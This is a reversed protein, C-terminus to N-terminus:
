QGGLGASQSLYMALDGNRMRRPAGRLMGLGSVASVIIPERGGFCIRPVTNKWGCMYIPRSHSHESPRAQRLDRMVVGSIQLSSTEVPWHSSALVIMRLQRAHFIPLVPIDTRDRCCEERLSPSCGAKHYDYRQHLQKNKM